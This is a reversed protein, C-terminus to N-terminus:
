DTTVLWGLMAVLDNAAAAGAGTPVAAPTQGLSNFEGGVSPVANAYTDTLVLIDNIGGAGGVPIQNTGCDLIFSGILTCGTVDLATLSNASCFVTNLASLGSIKLSTLCALTQGICTVLQLAPFGTMDLSVFSCGDCRLNVLSVCDAFDTISSIGTNNSIDINTLSTLGTVTLSTISNNNLTISNLFPCVSLDIAGSFSCFIATIDTLNPVDTFVLSPIANLSCNLVALSSCGELPLSTLLNDGINLTVLNACDRIDLAPIAGSSAILTNLAPLSQVGVVSQVGGGADVVSTVSKFDATADFVTWNTSHFGGSDVWDLVKTHLTWEFRPATTFTWLDGVTTGAANISDIQWTYGTAYSLAPLAFTTGVQIGQSVGNFWVEYSTAGGGNSWSLIPGAGTVIINGVHDNTNTPSPNIAKNPKAPPTPTLHTLWQCLLHIQMERLQTRGLYAFCRAQALLINPSCNM